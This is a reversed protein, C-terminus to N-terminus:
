QIAAKYIEFYKNKAADTVLTVNYVFDNDVGDYTFGEKYFIVQSYAESHDTICSAHTNITKRVFGPYLVCMMALADCNMVSESGNKKYFERIKGFSKAVFRGTENLGELQVFQEDTWQADGDCMDLGIVTIPLGSDLM